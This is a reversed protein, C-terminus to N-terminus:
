KLSCTASPDNIEYAEQAASCASEAEKKTM